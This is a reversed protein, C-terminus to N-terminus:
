RTFFPLGVIEADIVQRGLDVQVTAGIQAEATDVYAMAISKELTPSLCGSTVAGIDKSGSRVPMGHRAARRSDLVLGVLRRTPGAEAIKKLADQGIFGGVEPDDDGKNLTVAFSLGASIPDTAEDIEYGYLAMAAELRLSDRAGLGAPGLADSLGSLQESVLKMAMKSMMNDTRFIVEVGDEGTYGTRSILVDLGLISKTVFRYRKLGAIESSYQGILEMVRPGQLAVMASRQTLDEFSFVMDGRVNAFHDVLKARNTANCVM